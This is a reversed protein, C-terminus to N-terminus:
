NILTINPRPKITITQTRPDSVNGACDVIWYTITHIFNTFNIGDGPFLIDSGFTSPQGTQYATPLAPIRAGGMRDITWRIEVTCSLSCNDAFTLPNLDLATNGSVFTYYEPRNPNIDQSAANYIASYLTKVCESFPPPINFTPKINDAVTIQQSCVATGSINTATWTITTVGPNFTNNTIAGTGSATTAGTMVWSFSVPDVGSVKTPLGVSFTANCVGPDTSHTSSAACAIDLIPRVTITYNCSVINGCGDNATWTVTTLGLNFSVGNLTTYSGSITAGTLIATLTVSSCNDTATADWLNSAHSYGIPTNYDVAQNGTIPCTIVPSTVDQVFITQPCTSSNGCTDTAKWTRIIQYNGACSGSIIVDSWTLVPNPDCDSTAIAMGTVSPDLPSECSFADSAPCYILPSINDV